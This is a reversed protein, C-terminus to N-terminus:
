PTIWQQVEARKTNIVLLRMPLENVVLEGVPENFLEDYVTDTVALYIEREPDVKGLLLSYLVYQGIAQELDLM